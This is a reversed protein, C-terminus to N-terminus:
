SKSKRCVKLFFIHILFFQTDLSALMQSCLFFSTYILSIQLLIRLSESKKCFDHLFISFFTILTFIQTDPLLLSVFQGCFFFAGLLFRSFYSPAWFVNITTVGWLLWINHSKKHCCYLHCVWNRMLPLPWNIEFPNKIIEIEELFRVFSNSKVVIIGWISKNENM